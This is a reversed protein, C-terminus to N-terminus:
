ENAPLKAQRASNERWLLFLGSAVVVTSGIADEPESSSGAPPSSARDDLQM